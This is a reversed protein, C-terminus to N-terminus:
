EVIEFDYLGCASDDNLITLVVGVPVGGVVFECTVNYKNGGNDGNSTINFDGVNKIEVGKSFDVDNKQEFNEITQSIKDQDIQADPHICEEIKEADNTSLAVSFKETLAAMEELEQQLELIKGCGALCLACLALIIALVKKMHEM